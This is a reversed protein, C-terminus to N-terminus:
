KESHLFRTTFARDIEVAGPKLQECEILQDLLTQWRARSMTGIGEQKAAEDLVLPKIATAGFELIDLDMEPNLKHILQNAADPSEIYQVWGRVSAAVMKGVVDPHKDLQSDSTFLVSAYPNFGLDSVMLVKPNGGQKRAVFPESFVYGQQASNKDLLFTAVSGTYPVIKVGTFPLKKRLFYSFPNSSSMAITMNKLDDFDRIGSGEHVMICRPSIQLPAMVAVIPAEQARGFLINDANVVGFTVRGAAVQQIVPSDRGGALIKVNLGATRYYGHVLAAYYGGHEAEPFWNLQLTVSPLAPDSPPVGSEAGSGSDSSGETGAGSAADAPAAPSKSDTPGCGAPILLASLIAFLVIRNSFRHM